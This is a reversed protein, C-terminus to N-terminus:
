PLHKPTPQLYQGITLMDVGAERLAKFTELVEAREEGLGLMIGSKTLLEPRRDKVHRLLALSREFKAGVRVRRTLSPTTEINHNYVDPNAELVIDAQWGRGQFDPTLVEVSTAPNHRRVAEVVLKWH